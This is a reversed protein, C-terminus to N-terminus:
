TGDAAESEFLLNLLEVIGMDWSDAVTSSHPVGDISLQVHWQFGLETAEFEYFYGDPPLESKRFITNNPKTVEPWIDMMGRAPSAAQTAISFIDFPMPYEIHWTKKLAQSMPVPYAMFVFKGKM